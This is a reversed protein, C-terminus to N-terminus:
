RASSPLSIQLTLGKASPMIEATGQHASVIAAVMSLGLGHGPASRSSDLRTLPEFVRQWNEPAIGPGDDALRIRVEEGVVKTSIHAHTGAPTHLSLNDLLNAIARQLLRKEGLVLASEFETTLHIGCDELSPQYAATMEEVAGALDVLAFRKRVAEGNVESIALLGTLLELLENSEALAADIQKQMAPDAARQAEELRQHLRNVPTRLDHAIGVSMHRLSEVLGNIRDLMANLSMALRDLEGRGTEVPMRQTLNDVMIAEASTRIASLRRQIMRGFGIAVAGVVLIILGFNLLFLKLLKLDMEDVIARDAAVVLRGGGPVPSNMAQAIAQEGDAREFHVFESWGPPPMAARLTGARRRGSADTLIYGMSRDGGDISSLYGIDFDVGDRADITRVLADFGHAHNQQLLAQTEVEIRHDIQREIEHHVVAYTALGLLVTVIGAGLAVAIAIGRISRPIWSIRM